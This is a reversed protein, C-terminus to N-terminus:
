LNFPMLFNPPFAKHGYQERATKWCSEMLKWPTCRVAQNSKDFNPWSVFLTTLLTPMSRKFLRKRRHTMLRSLLSLDQSFWFISNLLVMFIGVKLQVGDFPDSGNSSQAAYDFHLWLHTSFSDFFSDFSIKPEFDKLCFCWIFSLRHEYSCLLHISYSEWIFWSSPIHHEYSGHLDDSIAWFKRLVLLWNLFTKVFTWWSTKVLPMQKKNPEICSSETLSLQNRRLNRTVLPEMESKPLNQVLFGKPLLSKAPFNESLLEWHSRNREIYTKLTIKLTIKLPINVVVSWWGGADVVLAHKDILIAVSSSLGGACRIGDQCVANWM